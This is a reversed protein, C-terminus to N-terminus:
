SLSSISSPSEKWEEEGLNILDEKELPIEFGETNRKISTIALDRAAKFGEIFAEIEQQEEYSFTDWSALRIFNPGIRAERALKELLKM